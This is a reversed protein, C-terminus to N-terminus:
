STVGQEDLRRYLEVRRRERSRRLLTVVAFGILAPCVLFLVGALVRGLWESGVLTALGLAAGSVLFYGGLVMLLIVACLGLAGLAVLMLLRYFGGVADDVLIRAHLLLAEWATKLHVLLDGFPGAEAGVSDDDPGPM